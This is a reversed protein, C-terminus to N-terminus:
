LNANTNPWILVQYYTYLKSELGEPTQVRRYSSRTRMPKKRFSVGMFSRESLHFRECIANTQLHKAKTLSHDIGDLWSNQCAAKREDKM